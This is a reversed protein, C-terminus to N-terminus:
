GFIWFRKKFLAKTIEPMKAMTIDYAHDVLTLGKKFNILGIDGLDGILIDVPHLILDKRLLEHEAIDFLSLPSRANFTKTELNSLYAGLVVEAGSARLYEAGFSNLVGGDIYEYGNLMVPRTLMPHAVSATLADALSGKSFVEAKGKTSNVVQIHLSINADEINYDGFIEVFMERIKDSEWLSLEKLSGVSLLESLKVNEQIKIIDEPTKGFAIASSVIAGASAGILSHIQIDNDRLAKWFGIYAAGSAGGGRISVGLRKQRMDIM